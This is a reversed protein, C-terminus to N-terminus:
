QAFLLIEKNYSIQLISGIEYVNGVSLLFNPEIRQLISAPYTHQSVYPFEVKRGTYLLYEKRKM